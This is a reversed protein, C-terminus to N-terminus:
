FHFVKLAYGEGILRVAYTCAYMVKWKLCVYAEVEAIYDHAVWSAM